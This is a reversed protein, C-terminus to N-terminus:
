LILLNLTLAKNIAEIFFAKLGINNHKITEFFSYHFRICVCYKTADVRDPLVVIQSIKEVLLEKRSHHDQM